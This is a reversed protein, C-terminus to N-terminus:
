RKFCHCGCGMASLISSAIERQEEIDDVVLVREGKGKHTQVDVVRAPSQLDDHSVPFYLKFVSGGHGDSEVEIHGHHDM